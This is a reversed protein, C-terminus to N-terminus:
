RKAMMLLFPEMRELWAAAKEMSDLVQEDYEAGRIRIVSAMNRHGDTFERMSKVMREVRKPKGSSLHIIVGAILCLETSPPAVVSAEALKAVSQL